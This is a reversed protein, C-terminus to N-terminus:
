RAFWLIKNFPNVRVRGMCMLNSCSSHLCTFIELKGNMLEFMLVWLQKLFGSMKEVRVAQHFVSSIVLDCSVGQM